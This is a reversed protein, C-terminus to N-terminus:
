RNKSYKENKLSVINSSIIVKEFIFLDIPRVPGLCAKLNYVM